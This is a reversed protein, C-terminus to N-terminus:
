SSSHVDHKWASILFINVQYKRKDTDIPFAQKCTSPCLKKALTHYSHADLTNAMLEQGQKM